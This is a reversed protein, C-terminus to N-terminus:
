KATLTFMRAIFSFILKIYDILKSLASAFNNGINKVASGTGYGEITGNNDNVNDSDFAFEYLFPALMAATLYEDPRIGGFASSCLKTLGSTIGNYGNKKLLSTVAKLIIEDNYNSLDDKLILSLGRLLITVETSDLSYAEEGEYHAAVLTTALDWLNNYDSDPIIIGYHSALERVSNYGYLPMELIGTLGDVATMVLDYLVSDEEVGIKEATLSLSLRYQVGTKLFNLAYENMGKNMENTQVESLLPQAELFSETDISEVTRSEYKIEEESFTFVRYFLPYMSLSTTAFDYIVNGAASTYSTADSCHEHGSLVVKIGWDAFLSATTYHFRVIFDHSLVRQVPLHDLLNHHMMLVPYRGEKLALEAQQKVWKLKEVTMGDETSEDPNNSDLAILRYKSGLNASYSCDDKVASIAHDYGLNKYIDKFVSYTTDCDDAADHNGNIVFVEKGSKKEFAELKEAVARHDEPRTRGNDALDGSILVYDISDDDACQNLFEDLIFGSEEDLSARRNAYWFVENDNTKDLEESVANYHLDSAVAIKLDNSKTKAFTFINFCGIIFVIALCLSILRKM